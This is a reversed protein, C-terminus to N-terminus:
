NIWKRTYHIQPRLPENYVEDPLPQGNSSGLCQLNDSARSTLLSASTIASYPIKM